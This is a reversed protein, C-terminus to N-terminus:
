VGFLGVRQRNSQEEYNLNVDDEENYYFFPIGSRKAIKNLIKDNECLDYLYNFQEESFKEQNATKEDVYQICDEIESSPSTEPGFDEILALRNYQTSEKWDYFREYYETWKMNAGMQVRDTLREVM